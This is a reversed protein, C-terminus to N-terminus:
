LSPRVPGIARSLWYVFSSNVSLTEGILANQQILILTKKRKQVLHLLQLPLLPNQVNVLPKGCTAPTISPHWMGKFIGESCGCYKLGSLLRLKTILVFSNCSFIIYLCYQYFEYWKFSYIETDPTTLWERSGWSTASHTILYFRQAFLKKIFLAEKGM